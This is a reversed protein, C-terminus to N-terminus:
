SRDTLQDRSVWPIIAPVLSEQTKLATKCDALHQGQVADHSGPALVLQPLLQAKMSPREGRWERVPRFSGPQYIPGKMVCASLATSDFRCQIDNDPAGWDPPTCTLKWTGGDWESPGPRPDMPQSGLSWVARSPAAM